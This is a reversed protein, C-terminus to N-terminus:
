VRSLTYEANVVYLAAMLCLCVRLNVMMDDYLETIAFETVLIAFLYEQGLIGDAISILDYLCTPYIRPKSFLTKLLIM